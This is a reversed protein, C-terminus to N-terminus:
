RVCEMDHTDANQKWQMGAGVCTRLRETDNKTGVMATLFIFFMVFGLFIACGQMFQKDTM